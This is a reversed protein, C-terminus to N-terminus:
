QPGGPGSMPTSNHFLDGLTTTLGGTRPNALTVVSDAGAGKVAEVTHPVGQYKVQMGELDNVSNKGYANLVRDFLGANQAEPAIKAAIGEVPAMSGMAMQVASNSLKDKLEPGLDSEALANGQKSMNGFYDAIQNLKDRIGM